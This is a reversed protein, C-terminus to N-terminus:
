TTFLEDQPNVKEDFFYNFLNAPLYIKRQEYIIFFSFLMTSKVESQNGMRKDATTTKM